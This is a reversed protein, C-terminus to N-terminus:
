SRRKAAQRVAARAIVARAQARLLHRWVAVAAGWSVMYGAVGAGLARVCATSLVAGHLLGLALTVGFALLGGTSKTRRIAAAAVPHEGVGILQPGEDNV